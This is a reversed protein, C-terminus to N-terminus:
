SRAPLAMHRVGLPGPLPPGLRGPQYIEGVLDEAQSGDLSMSRACQRIRQDYRKVLEELCEGLEHACHLALQEDSMAEWSSRVHYEV